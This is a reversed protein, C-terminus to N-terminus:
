RNELIANRMFAFARDRLTKFDLYHLVTEAVFRELMAENRCMVLWGDRIVRYRLPMPAAALSVVDVHSTGLRRCLEDTTRALVDEAARGDHILVAVDVDSLPGATGRTLSGFLYSASVDPESALVEVLASRAQGIDVIPPRSSTDRTV